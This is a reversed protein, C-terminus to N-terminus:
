VCVLVCVDVWSWLLFPSVIRIYVESLYIMEGTRTHIRQHRKNTQRDTPSSPAPFFLPVHETTRETCSFHGQGLEFHLAEKNELTDQVRGCCPPVLTIIIKVREVSARGRKCVCVCVCVCLCRYGEKLLMVADYASSYGHLVGRGGVGRSSREVLKSTSPSIGGGPLRFCRTLVMVSTPIKNFSSHM